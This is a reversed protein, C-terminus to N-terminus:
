RGRRALLVGLRIKARSHLARTADYSRGMRKATQKLDFGELDRLEIVERYHDPLKELGEALRLIEDDLVINSGPSRGPAKITDISFSKSFSDLARARRSRGADRINNRAVATMWRLIDEDSRADLDMSENLFDVFVEQLFDQSEALRRVREGMMMRIRKLLPKQFRLLLERGASADNNRARQLLVVSTQWGDKM